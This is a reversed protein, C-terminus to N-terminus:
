PRPTRITVAIMAGIVTVAAVVAFIDDYIQAQVLAQLKEWFQILGGPGHQQMTVIRPDVSPGSSRLQVLRDAMLQARRAAAMSTLVALGLSAAVREAVNNIASADNVSAKPVAALGGTMIAMLSLGNGAGRVVTWIMVSRAPVDVNIGCLLYTGFAAVALGLLSPFRPGVKDYLKGALPTMVAMAIAEPLMIWGTRLPTVGQSEQLFQPIYFVVAYLGVSLAVILLISNTFQWIKFVRIDLLPHAVQLEIIVFAALLDIAAAALMLIRYSTWGWDHGESLALLLSFLGVAVTAFGWVDFREVRIPPFTPLAILTLGVGVLGIPLNIFFILRWSQYQVLYGSLTPGIGPALLAGLGYIGMATGLKDTPAIRYVMTMTVVPLIGGPVAQLVRFIVMSPLDWSIGCLASTACFALLSVIYTRSLGYRNGLWASVPVVVGLTLSYVTSIWQISDSASGFEKQIVPIAVNVISTDLVSMFMGFILVFVALLWSAGPVLAAPAHTCPDTVALSAPAIGPQEGSSLEPGMQATAGIDGRAGETHPGTEARNGM